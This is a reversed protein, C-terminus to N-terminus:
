SVSTLVFTHLCYSTGVSGNSQTRMPHPSHPFCTSIRVWKCLIATTALNAPCTETIVVARHPQSKLAQPQSVDRSFSSIWTDDRSM